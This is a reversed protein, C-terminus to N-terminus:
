AVAPAVTHCLMLPSSPSVAKLVWWACSKPTQKQFPLFFSLAPFLVLHGRRKDLGGLRWKWVVLSLLAIGWGLFSAAKRLLSTDLATSPELYCGVFPLIHYLVLFWHFGSCGVILSQCATTAATCKSKLLPQIICNSCNIQLM